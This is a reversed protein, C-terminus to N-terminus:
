TESVPKLSELLTDLASLARTLKSEQEAEHAIWLAAEVLSGNILCAMAEADVNRIKKDRLLQELLVRLSSICHLHSERFREGLVAKSDKLVIQQFETNRSLTLYAHCRCRFGHWADSASDSILQLQQDLETDVENVVAVFLGQKGGFHHYLAGRTLGAEATLDDMSTNAFGLTGFAKRASAILKTRTEEIMEARARRTM